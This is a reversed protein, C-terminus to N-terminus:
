RTKVGNLYLDIVAQRRESVFAERDTIGWVPDLLPALLFYGANMAIWSIFTQRININRIEGSAQGKSFKEAIRQPLGAKSIADSLKKLSQPNGDALERLIIQRMQPTRHFISIHVEAFRSLLDELSEAADASQRLQSVMGMVLHELVATHLGEKSSFHYYIMAKNVGGREAIRDVRGGAFGHAAFEDIAATLVKQRTSSDIVPEVADHNAKM